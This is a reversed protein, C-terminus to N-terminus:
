QLAFFNNVLQVFKEMECGPALHGCDNKFQYLEANLIEAFEVSPTPNVMHDQTGVIILIKARVASAAEKLSGNFSKTIDHNMMAKLQSKWDDSNFIKTYNDYITNIFEDFEHPATKSIRYSPTQLAYNHLGAIAKLLEKEDSPCAKALDIINLETQWLLKDYSTLFPTGVYSVAREMFDPYTVIWQMVQMGGMSGGIMGYIKKFGFVETLLQYQSNVMDLITIEPFIEGAQDKSNSPSSSIGNGLADVTIVYFKTNDAIKGQGVHNALSESKGGFWTPFLIVNSKEENLTGFTRYGLKCDKIVEGSVLRFEGLDAFQQTSQAILELSFLFILILLYHSVKM